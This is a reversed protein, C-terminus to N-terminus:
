YVTKTNYIHRMCDRGVFKNNSDRGVFKNSDRGVFKNSGKTFQRLKM